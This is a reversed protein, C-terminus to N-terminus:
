IGKQELVDEEGGNVEKGKQDSRWQGGINMIYLRKTLKKVTKEMKYTFFQSDHINTAIDAGSFTAKGLSFSRKKTKEMEYINKGDQIYFKTNEKQRTHDKEM